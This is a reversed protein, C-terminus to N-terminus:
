FHEKYYNFREELYDCDVKIELFPICQIDREISININGLIQEILLIQDYTLIDLAICLGRSFSYISGIHISEKQMMNLLNFFTPDSSTIIINEYYDSIDITCKGDDLKIEM